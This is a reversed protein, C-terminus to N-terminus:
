LMELLGIIPGDPAFKSRRPEIKSSWHAQPNVRFVNRPATLGAIIQQSGRTV